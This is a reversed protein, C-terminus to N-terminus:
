SSQSPVPGTGDRWDTAVFALVVPSVEHAGRVRHSGGWLGRGGRQAGCGAVLRPFGQVSVVRCFFM